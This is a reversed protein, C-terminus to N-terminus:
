LLGSAQTNTKEIMTAFDAASRIAEEDEPFEPDWESILRRKFDELSISGMEELVLDFRAPPSSLHWWRKPPLPKELLLSKVIWRRLSNDILEMGIFTEDEVYVRHGITLLEICDFFLMGEQPNFGVAPFELDAASINVMAM